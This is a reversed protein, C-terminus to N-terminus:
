ADSAEAAAFVEEPTADPAETSGLTRRRAEIAGRRSSAGLVAWGSQEDPQTPEQADVDFLASVEATSFPEVPGFEVPQLLWRGGEQAAVVFARGDKHTLRTGLM